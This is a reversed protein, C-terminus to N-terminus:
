LIAFQILDIMFSTTFELFIHELFEPSMGSSNGWLIYKFNQGISSVKIDLFM